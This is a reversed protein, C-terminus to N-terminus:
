FIHYHLKLRRIKQKLDNIVCEKARMESEIKSRKRRGTLSSIDQMLLYSSELEEKERVERRLEKELTRLKEGNLDKNAGLEERMSVRGPRETIKGTIEPVKQEVDWKLLEGLVSERQNVFRPNETQMGTLSKSRSTIRKVPAASMEEIKSPVASSQGSLQNIIALQSVTQKQLYNNTSTLVLITEDKLKLEQTLINIKQTLYVIQEKLEKSPEEETQTSSDKTSSYRNMNSREENRDHKKSSSAFTGNKSYSDSYKKAENRYTYKAISKEKTPESYNCPLHKKSKFPLTANEDNAFETTKREKAIVHYPVQEPSVFQFKDAGSVREYLKPPIENSPEELMKFFPLKYLVEVENSKYNESEDGNFSPIHKSQVNKLDSHTFSQM